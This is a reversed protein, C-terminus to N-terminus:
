APSGEVFFVMDIVKARTYRLSTPEGTEFALTPERYRDVEASHDRYFDGIAELTRPSLSWVKFGRKFYTDIAPVAGFTGLMIKTTLTDSAGGGPARSLREAMELIMPAGGAYQDVDMSWMSRPVSAVEHGQLYAEANRAISVM